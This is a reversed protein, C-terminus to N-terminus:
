EVSEFCLPCTPSLGEMIQEGVSGVLCHPHFSHQCSSQLTFSKQLLVKGCSPLSCCQLKSASGGGAEKTKNHQAKTANSSAERIGYVCDTASLFNAAVASMDVLTGTPVATHCHSSHSAKKTKKTKETKKGGSKDGFDYTGDAGIELVEGGEGEVAANTNAKVSAKVSASMGVEKKESGTSGFLSLAEVLKDLAMLSNELDEGLVMQEQRWQEAAVGLRKQQSDASKREEREQRDIHFRLALHVLLSGLRGGSALMLAPLSHEQGQEERKILSALACVTVALLQGGVRRKGRRTEM